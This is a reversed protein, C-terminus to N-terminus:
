ERAGPNPFTDANDPDDARDLCAFDKEILIRLPKDVGSEQEADLGVLETDIWRAADAQPIEIIIRGHDFAARLRKAEASAIVEYTLTSGPAFDITESVPQGRRIADVEERLLRLRVSNERLRLKM